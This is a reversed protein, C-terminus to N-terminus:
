KNTFIIDSGDNDFRVRNGPGYTFQIQWGRENITISRDQGVGLNFGSWSTQGNPEVNVVYSSRNKFTFTSDSGPCGAVMAVLAMALAFLTLKRLM